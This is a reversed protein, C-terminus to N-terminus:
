ARDEDAQEEEPWHVHGDPEQVAEGPAHRVPPNVEYGDVPTRPDGPITGGAGSRQAPTSPAAGEEIAHSPLEVPPYPHKDEGPVPHTDRTDVPGVEGPPFTPDLDSM